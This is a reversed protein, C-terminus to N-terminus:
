IDLIMITVLLLVIFGIHINKYYAGLGFGIINAVVEAVSHHWGHRTSNKIKFLKDIPNYHKEKGAYILHKTHWTEKTPKRDLCGGFTNLLRPNKDIYYEFLEWIIGFLQILFFYEYFFYGLIFFFYFHNLQVGFVEFRYCQKKNTKINCPCAKSFSFFWLIFILGNLLLLIEKNKINGNLADIIRNKEFKFQNIIKSKIESM